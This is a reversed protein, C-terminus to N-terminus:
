CFFLRRTHDILLHQHGSKVLDKVTGSRRSWPCKVELVIKDDMMGDPSMGIFLASGCLTLGCKQITVNYMKEYQSIADQEHNQGCQLFKLFM